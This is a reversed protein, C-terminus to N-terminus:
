FHGHHCKYSSSYLVYVWATEHIQVRMCWWSTSWHCFLINTWQGTPVLFVSHWLLQCLFGADQTEVPPIKNHTCTLKSFHRGVRQALRCAAVSNRDKLWIYGTVRQNAKTCVHACISVSRKCKTHTNQKKDFKFFVIYVCSLFFNCWLWASM